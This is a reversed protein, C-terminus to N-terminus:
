FTRQMEARMYQQTRVSVFGLLVVLLLSLSFGWALKTVLSRKELHTLLLLLFKM